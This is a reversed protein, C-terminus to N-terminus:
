TPSAGKTTNAFTKQKLPTQQPVDTTSTLRIGNESFKADLRRWGRSLLLKIGPKANELSGLILIADEGGAGTTKWSWVIDHGQCQALESSIESPFLPSSMFFTRHDAITAFLQRQSVVTPFRIQRVFADVMAESIDSLKDSRNGNDLWQSTTQLASTTPTGAGGVFVHVFDALGDVPLRFWHPHWHDNTQDAYFEVLGGLYQTVLDYGSAQGQAEHQLTWAMELVNRGINQTLSLDRGHKLVEM